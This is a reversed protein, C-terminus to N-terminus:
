FEPKPSKEFESLVQNWTGVTLKKTDDTNGVELLKAKIADSRIGTSTLARVRTTFKAMEEKTPTPDLSAVFAQSEAPDTPPTEPVPQQAAEIDADTIGEVPPQGNEPSKDKPKPGRKKPAPKIDAKKEEPVPKTEQPQPQEPQEKLGSLHGNEGPRPAETPQAPVQNVPPASPPLPVVSAPTVATPQEEEESRIEEALYLKGLEEPFAKRLALAEACKALQEPGRKRWTENLYPASGDKPTVIGAYAEFRAIGVMPQEFGKRFVRSKVVWPEEPVGKVKSPLPIESSISPNGGDDLYIYEEPAQGAYQGTRQAILRLAAITTIWFPKKVYINAGTDPDKERASRLQFVLHSGPRLDRAECESIFLDFQADTAGKAYESRFADLEQQTFKTSM